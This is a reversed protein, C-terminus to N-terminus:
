KVYSKVMKEIYKAMMDVEINVLSGQKLDKLNTRSLTEKILSVKFSNRTVDFVTLSVGNISISGQNVIYNEYGLEISFTYIVNNVTQSIQTVKSIYDVHGSVIHGDFRKNGSMARELNVKDNIKINQFTTQKLTQNMVFAKFTNSSLNTVTLCIGNTAISAGVLSEELVTKCEIVLEKSNPKHLIKKVTGIEEILGTFM